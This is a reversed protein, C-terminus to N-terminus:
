IYLWFDKYKSLYNYIDDVIPQIDEKRNNYEKHILEIIHNLDNYKIANPLDNTNYIVRRGTLGMEIVTNSLGDKTTFRLGVFSKKYFENIQQNSYQNSKARIVRFPIRKEVEDMIHEGYKSGHGYFYVSDADDKPLPNKILKTSYAPIYESSLGLETLRQQVNKSISLVRFRHLEDKYHRYVKGYYDVDTGGFLVVGKGKHKRLTEYDKETYMGKFLAPSDPDYYDVLGYNEKVSDKFFKVTDSIYLQKIRQTEPDINNLVYELSLYRDAWQKNKQGLELFERKSLFVLRKLERELENPEVVIVPPKPLEKTEKLNGSTIVVSGTKMAELGSKGLGGFYGNTGAKKRVEETLMQDIFIYSEAKRKICDEWALGHIIDLELGVKDCIESIFSTGKLDDDYKLGPSHAVKLYKIQESFDPVPLYQYYLSYDQIFDAKHEVKDPMFLYRVNECEKLEQNIKDGNLYKDKFYWSDTIIATVQYDKLRKGLSELIPILKKIGKAGFLFLEKAQLFSQEAEKKDNQYTLYNYFMDDFDTRRNNNMIITANLYNAVFSIGGYSSDMAWIVRDKYVNKAFFTEKKNFDGVRRWIRDAGLLYISKETFMYKGQIM